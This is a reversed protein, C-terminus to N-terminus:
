PPWVRILNPQERQGAERMTMRHVLVHDTMTASIEGSFGSNETKSKRVKRRKRRMWWRKSKSKQRESQEEDNAVTPVTKLPQKYAKTTNFRSSLRTSGIAAM